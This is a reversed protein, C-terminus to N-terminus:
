KVMAFTLLASRVMEPEYFLTALYRQLLPIGRLRLDTLSIFRYIFIRLTLLLLSVDLTSLSFVKIEKSIINPIKKLPANAISDLAERSLFTYTAPFFERIKIDQLKLIVIRNLMDIDLLSGVFKCLFNLNSKSFQEYFLTWLYSILSLPSNSENYLSTYEINLLDLISKLHSFDAKGSLFLKIEVERIKPYLLLAKFLKKHSDSLHHLLTLYEKETRQTLSSMSFKERIGSPLIKTSLLLPNFDVSLYERYIKPSLLSHERNRIMATLLSDSLKRRSM